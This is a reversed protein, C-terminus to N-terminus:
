EGPGLQAHVESAAPDERKTDYRTVTGVPQEQMAPVYLMEPESVTWLGEVLTETPPSEDKRTIRGCTSRVILTTPSPVVLGDPVLVCSLPSVTGIAAFADSPQSNLWQVPSTKSGDLAKVDTCM